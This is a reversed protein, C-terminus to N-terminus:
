CSCSFPSRTKAGPAVEVGIGADILPVAIHLADRMAGDHCLEGVNPQYQQPM